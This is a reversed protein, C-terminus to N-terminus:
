KEDKINKIYAQYLKSRTISTIRVGTLKAAEYRTKGKKILAIARQMEASIKASM